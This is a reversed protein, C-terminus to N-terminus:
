ACFAEDPKAGSMVQVRFHFYNIRRPPAGDPAAADMTYRMFHESLVAGTHQLIM